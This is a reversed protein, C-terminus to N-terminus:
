RLEEPYDIDLLIGRCSVELEILHSKYKEIIGKAGKDGRLQLLENKFQSSFGVPHGRKGKFVPAVLAANSQLARVVTTIVDLDIYPMDALALVWAKAMPFHSIGCRISSSLGMSASNNHITCIGHQELLTNLQKDEERTVAITNPLVQLLRQASVLAVPKNVDPLNNVLKSAGFRRSYGAALLIGAIDESLDPRPQMMAMSKSWLCAM